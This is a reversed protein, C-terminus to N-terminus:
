NINSRQRRIVYRLFTNSNWDSVLDSGIFKMKKDDLNYYKCAENVTEFIRDVYGIELIGLTPVYKQIELVYVM